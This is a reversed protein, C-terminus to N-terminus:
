QCTTSVMKLSKVAVAGSAAMDHKMGEKGMKDKGMASDKATSSDKAMTSDKATPDKKMSDMPKMMGTIEVKHCVHPKLTGGTLSYSMPSGTDGMTANNLMFHGGSEAVCGTLTVTKATDKAAMKDKSQDSATGGQAAVAVTCGMAIISAYVVRKM